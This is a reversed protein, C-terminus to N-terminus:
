SNDKLQRIGVALEVLQLYYDDYGWESPLIDDLCVEKRLLKRIATGWGHHDLGVWNLNDKKWEEYIRYKSEDSLNERLVKVAKEVVWEPLEALRLNYYEIHEEDTFCEGSKVKSVLYELRSNTPYLHKNFPDTNHSGVPPIRLVKLEQNFMKIFWNKFIM